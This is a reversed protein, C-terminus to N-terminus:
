PRTLFLVRRKGIQLRGVQRYDEHRARQGKDSTVAIVAHQSLVPQIAELLHWIMDQGTDDRDKTHWASHRGYPVDTMVIDVPQDNLHKELEAGDLANALFLRSPIRDSFDRLRTELRAFTKLAEAHSEKGYRSHLLRVRERQETMGASTLLSLNRQALPLVEPDADSGIVCRLHNWHLYTLTTLLYASGCLPDYLTVKTNRLTSPRLALCRQFIEDALRVPFGTRGPLSRFVRGTSYDSYDLRDVAFRYSM